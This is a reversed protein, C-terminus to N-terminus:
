YVIEPNNLLGIQHKLKLSLKIIFIVIGYFIKYTLSYSIPHEFKVLFGGLIGWNLQYKLCKVGDFNM